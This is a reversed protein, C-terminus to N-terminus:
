EYSVGKIFQKTYIMLEGNVVIYVKFINIEKLKSNEISFEKVYDSEVIKEIISEYQGLVSYSWFIPVNGENNFELTFKTAKGENELALKLDLGKGNVLDKVQGCENCYYIERKYWTDLNHELLKTELRRNCYPCEASQDNGWNKKHFLSIYKESLPSLANKSQKYLTELMLLISNEFLKELSHKKKFLKNVVSSDLFRLNYNETIGNFQNEIEKVNNKIGKEFVKAIEISKTINNYFEKLNSLAFDSNLRITQPLKESSAFLVLNNDYDNVFYIPEKSNLLFENQFLVNSECIGFHSEHEDRSVFKGDCLEYQKFIQTQGSKNSPDGFLIYKGSDTTRMDLNKNIIKVIEGQSYGRSMLTLYWMNDIDNNDKLGNYLIFNKLSTEALNGYIAQKGKLSPKYGYCSNIFLYDVNLSKFYSLLDGEGEENVTLNKSNFYLRQGNGHCILSLSNLNKGKVLDIESSRRNLLKISETEIEKMAPNVFNLIYNEESKISNLPLYEKQTGLFRKEDYILFGTNLEYSKHILGDLRENEENIIVFKPNTTNEATNYEDISFLRYKSEEKGDMLMLYDPKMDTYVDIFSM